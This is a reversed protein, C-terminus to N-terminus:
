FRHRKFESKMKGFFRDMYVFVFITPVFGGKEDFLWWSCDGEDGLVVGSGVLWFERKGPLERIHFIGGAAEFGHLNSTPHNKQKKKIGGNKTKEFSGLFRSVFFM